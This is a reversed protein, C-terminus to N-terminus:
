KAPKAVNKHRYCYHYFKGAEEIFFYDDHLQAPQACWAPTGKTHRRTVIQM